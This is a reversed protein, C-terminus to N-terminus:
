RGGGVAPLPYIRVPIGANAALRICGWTGTSDPRPFALCVSAGRRVMEANRAPGARRGLRDWDAFYREVSLAHEAAWLHAITDVGSAGGHVIVLDNGYNPLALEEALVAAILQRDREDARRSGTVLIRIM